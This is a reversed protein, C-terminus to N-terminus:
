FLRHQPPAHRDVPDHSSAGGEVSDWGAPPLLGRRRAEEESIYEHGAPLAEGHPGVYPVLPDLRQIAIEADDVASLRDDPSDTYVLRRLQRLKTAQDLAQAGLDVLEQSLPKGAEAVLLIQHLALYLAEAADAVTVRAM